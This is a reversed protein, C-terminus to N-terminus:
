VHGQSAEDPATRPFHVTFTTGVNKASEVEITGSMRQILRLSIALGLGSGEYARALGTSEQQFEDFLHPMFSESIGIGTDAVAVSVHDADGGVTIVVGGENTFKIANGILNNLVRNLLNKDVAAMVDTTAQQVRLYLGREDALPRLLQAIQETEEAVDVYIPNYQMAGRELQALDLVSNLTDMLRQGNQGILNAFEQHTGDAEEALIGSFGIISTLPTRIEHSMNAMLTSKLQALQEAEEKAAILGKEYKKRGTIDNFYVSLGEAFPHIHVEFWRDLPQYFTEFNVPNQDEAASSFMRLIEGSVDEAFYARADRGLMANRSEQLFHEAQPNLDTFRWQQDVSFFGDTISELIKRSRRNSRQLATHATALKQHADRLNKLTQGEYLWGLFGLFLALTAIELFYFLANDQATFNPFVHGSLELAYFGGTILAVLGGFIFGFFPRVLFAALWPIVLMWLLVPDNLGMDHYAQYAQIALAEICLLAGPITTSRTWRFVLLNAMSLVCGSFMVLVSLLPYQDIQSMQCGFFLAIVFFGFSAAIFLRGRRHQDANHPQTYSAPLFGDVFHLLAPIFPQRTRRRPRSTRPRVPATAASRQPSRRAKYRDKTAPTQTVHPPARSNSYPSDVFRTIKRVM